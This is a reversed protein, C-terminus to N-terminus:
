IAIEVVSVFNSCITIIINYFFAVYELMFGYYNMLFQLLKTDSIGLRILMSTQLNNIFLLSYM